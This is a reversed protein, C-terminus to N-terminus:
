VAECSEPFRERLSLGAFEADAEDTTGHEFLFQSLECLTAWDDPCEALARDLADRAATFAGQVKATRSKMLLGEVRLEAVNQARRWRIWDAFRGARLM